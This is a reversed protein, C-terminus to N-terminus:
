APCRRSSSWASPRCRPSCISRRSAATVSCARWRGRDTKSIVCGPTPGTVAKAVSTNRPSAERNLSPFARALQTPRIGLSYELPVRCRRPANLLCPLHRFVIARLAAEDDVYFKRDGFLARIQEIVTDDGLAPRGRPRGTPKRATRKRDRWSRLANTLVARAAANLAGTSKFDIFEGHRRGDSDIWGRYVRLGPALKQEIAFGLADGYTSAPWAFVVEDDRQLTLQLKIWWHSAKPFTARLEAETTLFKTSVSVILGEDRSSQACSERAAPPCSWGRCDGTSASPEKASRTCRPNQVQRRVQTSVCLFREPRVLRACVSESFRSEIALNNFVSRLSSRAACLSYV